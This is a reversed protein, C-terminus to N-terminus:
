VLLLHSKYSTSEMIRVPVASIEKKQRIFHERKLTALVTVLDGPKLTVLVREKRYKGGMCIIISLGALEEKCLSMLKLIYNM